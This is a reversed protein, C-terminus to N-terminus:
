AHLRVLVKQGERTMLAIDRGSLGDITGRIRRPTGQAHAPLSGVLTLASVALLLNRRTM